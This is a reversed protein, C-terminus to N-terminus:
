NPWEYDFVPGVTKSNPNDPDLPFAAVRKAHVLLSEMLAIADRIKEPKGNFTEQLKRLLNRYVQHFAKAEYYARSGHPIGDKGPNKRMPWVGNEELPISRGSYSYHTENVKRLRHGCVIEEFKYFHALKEGEYYPDVPSAGEGQDCIENIANIASELDTIIYLEGHTNDWPWEVQNLTNPESFLDQDYLRILCKEIQKYFQGITANTIITENVAVETKHPFEIGMFVDRIHRISAKELTVYLHPLVGGPLGTSPYSPATEESDIKPQGGLAILLNSAQAMHLMEQMVVSRILLYVESNFGEKISYMSTMYLPITAFELQIAQQVQKKLSEITCNNHIADLQWQNLGSRVSDSRLLSNSHYQLYDSGQPQQSFKHSTCCAAVPCPEAIEEPETSVAALEAEIPNEGSRNYLPPYPQSLWELIVSQKLPSLDRVVPMYTPDEFDRSMALRLLHINRRQVVSIYDSMNLIKSMVPYLRYYQKFIPQIHDVWTYPKEYNFEHPDSHALITIYNSCYFYSDVNPCVEADDTGNVRYEYQYIQGDIDVGHGGCVSKNNYQRPYPIREEDNLQLSFTVIGFSDTTMISQSPVVGQLPIPDNRVTLNVPIGSAPLGFDTVVLDFTATDNYTSQLRFVFYDTPRVFFRIEKLLVQAFDKGRLSPLIECVSYSRKWHLNSDSLVVLYLHMQRLKEIQDDRLSIDVIGGTHELWGKELYPIEPGILEMCDNSLMAFHLTGLDRLEGYVNLPLANSLDVSLFIFNTSSHVMFPAKNAWHIKSTDINFCSDTENIKIEPTPVRHHSLLRQGGVNLPENSRSIGISGIIKGYSYNGSRCTENFLDHTISVSLSDTEYARTQLQKLALSQDYGDGWLVNALKSTSQTSKIPDGEQTTCLIRKWKNFDIISRTWDAELILTENVATGSDDVSAPQVIALTMGFITTTVPPDPDLDVLKPLPQRLNNVLLSNVIQDDETLTGDEYVVSTIRANFFYYEGTGNPNWDM